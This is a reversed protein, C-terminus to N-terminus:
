KKELIKIEGISNALTTFKSIMANESSIYGGPTSRRPKTKNIKGKFYIQLRNPVHNKLANFDTSNMLFRYLRGKFENGGVTVQDETSEYSVANFVSDKGSTLLIRISMTDNALEEYSKNGIGVPFSLGLVYEPEKEKTLIIGETGYIGDDIM